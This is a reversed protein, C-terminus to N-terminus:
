IIMYIGLVIELENAESNRGKYHNVIGSNLLYMKNYIILKVIPLDLNHEIAYKHLVRLTHLGEVTGISKLVDDM